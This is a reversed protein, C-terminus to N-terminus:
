RALVMMNMQLWRASDSNVAWTLVSVEQPVNKVLNGVWIGGIGMITM